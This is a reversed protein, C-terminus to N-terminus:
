LRTDKKAPGPTAPQSAPWYSDDDPNQDIIKTGIIQGTRSIRYVRGHDGSDDALEVIWCQSKRLWDSRNVDKYKERVNDPASKAISEAQSSSIGTEKINYTGCAGLVFFTTAALILRLPARLMALISYKM